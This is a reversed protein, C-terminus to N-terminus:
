RLAERKARIDNCIPDDPLKGLETARDIADILNCTLEVVEAADDCAFCIDHHIDDRNAIWRLERIIRAHKETM